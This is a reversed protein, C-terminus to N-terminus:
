FLRVVTDDTLLSNFTSFLLGWIELGTCVIWEVKSIEWERLRLNRWWKSSLGKTIPNKISYSDRQAVPHIGQLALRRTTNEHDPCFSKKNIASEDCVFYHIWGIDLLSAEVMRRYTIKNREALTLYTWLECYLGNLKIMVCNFKCWSCLAPNRDWESHFADLKHVALCREFCKVNWMTLSLTWLELLSIPLDSLASLCSASKSPYKAPKRVQVQPSKESV